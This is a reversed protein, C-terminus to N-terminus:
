AETLLSDVREMLQNLEFPKSIHDEAGADLSAQRADPNGYSSIMLIPTDSFDEMAKLRVCLDSGNLLPMQSDLIILDPRSEKAQQFAQEGDKAAIVQYGYLRLSYAIMDRLDAQNEAVLIKTMSPRVDNTM